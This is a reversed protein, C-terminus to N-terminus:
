GNYFIKKFRFHLKLVGDEFESSFSRSKDWQRNVIRFALDQYIRPAQFVITCHSASRDKNDYIIKYTPTFETDKLEPYFINFRYGQAVKPPPNESNYHAKNYRNWEFGLEVKNYYRPKILKNNTSYDKIPQLYDEHGRGHDIIESETFRQPKDQSAKNIPKDIVKSLNETSTKFYKETVRDHYDKISDKARTLQIERLLVEWFQRNVLESDTLKQKIRSELDVLERSSKGEIVNRVDKDVVTSTQMDHRAILTDVLTLSTSWFKRNKIDITVFEQIDAKLKQLEEVSLGETLDVPSPIKSGIDNLSEEEYGSLDELGKALVAFYDIALQRNERFRIVAGKKKQDAAFKNEASIGSYLESHSPQKRRRSGRSKPSKSRERRGRM